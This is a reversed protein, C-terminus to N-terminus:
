AKHHARGRILGGTVGVVIKARLRRAGSGGIHTIQTQATGGAVTVTAIATEPVWGSAAATFTDVGGFFDDGGEQRPTGFNTSEITIATIVIAADYKWQISSWMGEGGHLEAYYTTGAVLPQKYDVRVGAATWFVVDGSDPQQSM